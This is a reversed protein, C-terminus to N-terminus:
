CNENSIPATRGEETCDVVGRVTVGLRDANAAVAERRAAPLDVLMGSIMNRVKGNAKVYDEAVVDPPAYDVQLRLDATFESQLNKQVFDLHALAFDFRPSMIWSEAKALRYSRAISVAVDPSDPSLLQLIEARILWANGDAPSCFIRREVASLAHHELDVTVVATQERAPTQNLLYIWLTVVARSVKDQCSLTVGNKGAEDLANVVLEGPVAYSSEIQRALALVNAAAVEGWINSVSVIVIPAAIALLVLGRVWRM